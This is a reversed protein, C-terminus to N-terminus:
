RGVGDAAPKVQDFDDYSLLDFPTDQRRLVLGNQPTLAEWWRKSDPPNSLMGVLQGQRNILVAVAEPEGYRALTGPHVYWEYKHKGKPINMLSVEGRLLVQRPGPGASKSRLLVYCILNLDDTWDQHTDFYVAVQYWERVAKMAMPTVNVRYEPTRVKQAEIKKLPVSTKYVTAPPAVAQAGARESAVALMMVGAMLGAAIRKM